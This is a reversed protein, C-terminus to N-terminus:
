ALVKVPEPEPLEFPLKEIEADAGSTSTRVVNAVFVFLGAAVLAGGAIWLIFLTRTATSVVFWRDGTSVKTGTQVGAVQLYGQVVGGISTALIVVGLGITQM